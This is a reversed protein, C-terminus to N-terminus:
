CHVRDLHHWVCDPVLLVVLSLISSTIHTLAFDWPTFSRTCDPGLDSGCSICKLPQPTRACLTSFCVCTAGRTTGSRRRWEGRGSMARGSRPKEAERGMRERPKEEERERPREEVGGRRGEEGEVRGRSGRKTAEKEIHAAPRHKRTQSCSDNSKKPPLPCELHLKWSSQKTFFGGHM